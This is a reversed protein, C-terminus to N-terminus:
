KITTLTLSANYSTKCYPSSKRTNLYWGVIDKESVRGGLTQVARFDNVDPDSTVTYPLFEEKNIMLSYVCSSGTLNSFSSVFVGDRRAVCYGKSKQCDFLSSDGEKTYFGFGTAKHTYEDRGLWATEGAGYIHPMEAESVKDRLEEARLGLAQIEIALTNLSSATLTDEDKWDTKLVALTLGIGLSFFAGVLLSKLALAKANQLFKSSSPNIKKM